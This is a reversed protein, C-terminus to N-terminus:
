FKGYYGVRETKEQPYALNFDINTDMIYRDCIINYNLFYKLRLYISYYYILDLM